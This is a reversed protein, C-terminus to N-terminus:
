KKLIIFQNKGSKRLSEKLAILRENIEPIPKEFNIHLVIFVIQKKKSFVLHLILLFALFYIVRM